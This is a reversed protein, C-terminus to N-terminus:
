RARKGIRLWGLVTYGRVHYLSAENFVALQNRHLNSAERASCVRGLCAVRKERQLDRPVLPIMDRSVGPLGVRM